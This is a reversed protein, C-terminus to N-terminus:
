TLQYFNAANLGMIRAQEHESLTRISQIIVKLIKNYNGTLLCVPWDSGFMLRAPGFQELCFDIYPQFDKVQWNNWDAETTLGSLKVNVHKYESILKMHKAWEAFSQKKINPKSIHDIVLRMEPLASIFAVVEPLQGEHTLIDYSLDHNKLAKVGQIFAPRTMFGEPEAQLIHRVGKFIGNKKYHALKEAIDGAQLDVWGVVGKIFPYTTALGLLFETEQLSQDAQVAICGTVSNEELLPLLDDPMFDRRIMAMDETIWSDRVPNYQWFHQHADIRM